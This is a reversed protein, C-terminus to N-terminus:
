AQWGVDSLAECLCKVWIFYGGCCIVERMKQGGVSYELFSGLLLGSGKVCEM